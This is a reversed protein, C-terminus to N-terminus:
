RTASIPSISGSRTPGDPRSSAPWCAGRGTQRRPRQFSEQLKGIPSPRAAARACRWKRAPMRIGTSRRMSPAASATPCTGPSRWTAAGCRARHPRPRRIARDAVRARPREQGGGDIGHHGQRAPARHGAAPRRRHRVPQRRLPRDARQGAHRDRPRRRSAGRAGQAQRHRHHRRGRLRYRARYGRGCAGAAVAEPVDITITDGAAVHYAPDRVPAGKLTVSGALILAKLRSRSLEPQRVALVRDLRTSGEDGEVTVILRNLAIRLRTRNWHFRALRNLHHRRGFGNRGFRGGLLGRKNARTRRIISIAPRVVASATAATSTAM